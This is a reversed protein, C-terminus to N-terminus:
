TAVMREIDGTNKTANRTFENIIASVDKTM